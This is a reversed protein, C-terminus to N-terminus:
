REVPKSLNKSPRRSSKTGGLRGARAELDLSASRLNSAHLFALTENSLTQRTTLKSRLASGGKIRFAARVWCLEAGCDFRYRRIVPRALKFAGIGPPAARVTLQFDSCISMATADLHQETLRRFTAAIPIRGRLGLDQSFSIGAVSEEIRGLGVPMLQM